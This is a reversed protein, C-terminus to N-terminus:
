PKRDKGSLRILLLAALALIALVLAAYWIIPQDAANPSFAILGAVSLALVLVAIGSRSNQRM